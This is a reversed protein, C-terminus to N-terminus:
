ATAALLRKVAEVRKVLIDREDEIDRIDSDAPEPLERLEASLDMLHLTRIINPNIDTTNTEMYEYYVM